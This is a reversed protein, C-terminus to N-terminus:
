IRRGLALAGLGLVVLVGAGPEPVPTARVLWHYYSPSAAFGNSSSWWGVTETLRGLEFETAGTWKRFYAVGAISRKSPDGACTAEIGDHTLLNGGYPILVQGFLDRARQAEAISVSFGSVLPKVEACAARRFGAGIWGGADAEIEAVTHRGQKTLHLWDLGSSTDRVVMGDGPAFLDVVIM